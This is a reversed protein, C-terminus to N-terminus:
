RAEQKPSQPACSSILLLCDNKCSLFFPFFIQSLLPFFFLFSSFFLFPFSSFFLFGSCSPLFSFPFCYGNPLCLWELMCSWAQQAEEWTQMVQREPETYEQLDKEALVYGVFPNPYTSYLPIISAGPSSSLQIFLFACRSYFARTRVIM